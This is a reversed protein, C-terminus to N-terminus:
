AGVLPTTSGNYRAAEIVADRCLILSVRVLHVFEPEQRLRIPIERQTPVHQAVTVNRAPTPNSARFRKPPLCANRGLTNYKTDCVTADIKVKYLYDVLKPSGLSKTNNMGEKRKGRRIDM